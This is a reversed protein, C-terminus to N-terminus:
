GQSPDPAQPHGIRVGGHIVGAAVSGEQASIRVDGGAALGGDGASVQARARTAHEALLERLAEGAREREDEPLDELFAEFRAQWSAEQRIRVRELQGGEAAALEAATRGLRELEAGERRADGRGFWAAVRGRFGEWAETGVATMVATGGSMALAILAEPLM